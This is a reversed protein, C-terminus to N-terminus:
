PVAPAACQKMLARKERASATQWEPLQSAVCRQSTGAEQTPADAATPPPTTPTAIVPFSQPAEMFGLRRQLDNPYAMFASARAKRASHSVFIGPVLAAVGAIVAVVGVALFPTGPEDHIFTSSQIARSLADFNMSFGAGALVAGAVIGIAGGALLGQALSQKEGFEAAYQATASNPIVAPQLDRPDEVRFGSGLMVFSTSRSITGGGSPVTLVDLQGVPLLETLARKRDGEPATAAPPTPLVV